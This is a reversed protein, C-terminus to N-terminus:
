GLLICSLSTEYRPRVPIWDEYKGISLSSEVYV